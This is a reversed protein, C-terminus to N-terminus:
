EHAGAGGLRWYGAAKMTKASFGLTILQARLAKAVASEAAVWVYADSRDVGQLAPELLPLLTEARGRSAANRLAWHLSLEASSTLEIKSAEDAAEIVVHARVGAPLEELRRAIAPLATEDGILVHDAFATPIVFSGRPGGVGLRSGPEAAMAWETAPGAHGTVFDLTLVGEAAEYARPTYDRAVPRPDPFVPGDPGLTPLIPAEGAKVPFIKVHDDFGLSVFGELDAGGLRIRRLSPTLDQVSLVSLDRFRL